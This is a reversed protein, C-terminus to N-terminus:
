VTNTSRLIRWGALGLLLLMASLGFSGATPVVVTPPGGTSFSDTAFALGLQGVEILANYPVNVDLTGIGHSGAEVNYDTSGDDTTIRLTYTCFSTGFVSIGNEAPTAIEFFAPDECNVDITWTCQATEVDPNMLTATLAGDALAVTSAEWTM